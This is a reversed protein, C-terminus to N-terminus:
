LQLIFPIRSQEEQQQSRGKDKLSIGKTKAQLMCLSLNQM